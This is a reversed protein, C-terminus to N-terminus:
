SLQASAPLSLLPIPDTHGHSPVQVQTAQQTLTIGVLIQGINLQNNNSFCKCWCKEFLGKQLIQGAEEEAANELEVAPLAKKLSLEMRVDSIIKKLLKLRRSRSPSSKMATTLDLKELLERLQEELSMHERNAPVLLRDVSLTFLCCNKISKNFHLSPFHLFVTIMRIQCLEEFKSIRNTIRLKLSASFQSTRRM